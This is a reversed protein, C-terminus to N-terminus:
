SYNHTYVFPFWWGEQVTCLYFLPSRSGVFGSTALVFRGRVFLSSFHSGNVEFTTSMPACAPYNTMSQVSQTDWEINSWAPFNNIHSSVTRHYFVAGFPVSLSCLTFCLSERKLLTVLLVQCSPLSHSTIGHLRWTNLRHRTRAGISTGFKSSLNKQEFPTVRHFANVVSPALCSVTCQFIIQLSINKCEIDAGSRVSQLITESM